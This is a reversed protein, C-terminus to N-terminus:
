DKILLGLWQGDWLHLQWAAEHVGAREALAEPPEAAAYAKVQQLHPRVLSLADRNKAM